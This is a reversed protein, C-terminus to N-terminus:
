EERVVAEGPVYRAQGKATGTTVRGDKRWGLSVLETAVRKSLGPTMDAISIGLESLIQKTTVETKGDAARAIDDCWPDVSRREAVEAQAQVEVEGELWWREGDKFLAVAEAWLQDRDRAIDKVMIEGVRVPWFRRGGTEDRQWDDKNTTGIFICRRPEKVEERAYAPRFNEVQRSIFAKIQDMERRMAELEAVEIIWKGRLYSSADKSGMAPLADSFWDEGALTRAATSKKRGQTGELVLMHDAKCGPKYARAVASIMWRKGVESTYDSAEAGCYRTLWSDIRHEGDWHLDNLYEVLPDFSHQGAVKRVAAVVTAADARPFGIRNFWIQAATYDDDELDRPVCRRQGPIASLLVRSNTFTNYALVGHWDPHRNMLEEANAINWIPRDKDDRILDFDELRYSTRYDGRAMKEFPNSGDAMM